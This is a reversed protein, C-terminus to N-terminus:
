ISLHDYFEKQIDRYLEKLTKEQRITTFNEKSIFGEKITKKLHSILHRYFGKENLLWIPKDHYELQAWTLTEFLEDLTGLGGPLALFGDANDYMLQKREHMTEVVTLQTLGHHATEWEVLQKPIFGLVKGGHQLCADALVGMLGIGGGGYVLKINNKAMWKGLGQAMKKYHASKGMSSGCFVCLKKM